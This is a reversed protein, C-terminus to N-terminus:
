CLEERYDGTRRTLAGEATVEYFGMPGLPPSYAHLSTAPPGAAHQVDHIHAAGFGFTMGQEFRRVPRTGDLCLLTERISGEVVTVAGRSGNHDHFGTDQAECWCILWIEVHEDLHLQVYFRQDTSHRVHRRWLEPHEALDAVVTELEARTLERVRDHLAFWRATADDAVRRVNGDGQRDFPLSRTLPTELASM